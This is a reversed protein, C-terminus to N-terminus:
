GANRRIVWAALEREIKPALYAWELGVAVKGSMEQPALHRIFALTERPVLDDIGETTVLLRDGLSLGRVHAQATVFGLGGRSLSLLQGPHAPQGPGAQFSVVPADDQAFFARPDRRREAHDM